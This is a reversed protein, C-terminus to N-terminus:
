RRLRPSCVKSSVDNCFAKSASLASCWELLLLPIRSMSASFASWSGLSGAPAAPGVGCNPHELEPDAFGSRSRASAAHNQVLARYLFDTIPRM